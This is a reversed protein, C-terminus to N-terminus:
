TRMKMNKTTPEDDDDRRIKVVSFNQIHAQVSRTYSIYMYREITNHLKLNIKSKTGIYFNCM